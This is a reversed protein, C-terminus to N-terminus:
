VASHADRVILQTPSRRLGVHAVSSAVAGVGFHFAFAASTRPALAAARAGALRRTCPFAASGALGGLAAAALACAAAARPLAPAAAPRAFAGLLLAARSLRCALAAASLGRLLATGAAGCAALLLGERDFLRLRGRADVVCRRAPQRAQGM